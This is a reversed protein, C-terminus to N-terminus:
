LEETFTSLKSVQYAIAALQLEDLNFKPGTLDMLSIEDLATTLFCIQGDVFIDTIDIFREHRISELLGLKHANHLDFKRIAFMGESNHNSRDSEKSESIATLRQGVETHGGLQLSFRKTFFEWPNTRGVLLPVKALQMPDERTDRVIGAAKEAQFQTQFTGNFPLITHRKGNRSSM